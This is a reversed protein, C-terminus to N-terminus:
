RGPPEWKTTSCRRFWNNLGKNQNKRRCQQLINHFRSMREEQDFPPLKQNTREDMVQSLQQAFADYPNRNHSLGM